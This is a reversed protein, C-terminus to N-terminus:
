KPGLRIIRKVIPLPIRFASGSLELEGAVTFAGCCVIWVSDDDVKMVWGATKCLKAINLKEEVARLTCWSDETSSDEWEVLVLTGPKPTKM